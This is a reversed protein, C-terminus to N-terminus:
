SALEIRVVIVACSYSAVHPNASRRGKGAGGQGIWSQSQPRCPTRPFPPPLLLVVGEPLPPRPLRPLPLLLPPLPLLLWVGEAGEWPGDM